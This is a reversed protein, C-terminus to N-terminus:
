GALYALNGGSVAPARATALRPWRGGIARRPGKELHHLIIGPEIMFLLTIWDMVGASRSRMSPLTSSTQPDAISAGGVQDPGPLGLFPQGLGGPRVPAPRRGKRGAGTCRRFSERTGQYGWGRKPWWRAARAARPTSQNLGLGTGEFWWVHNGSHEILKGWTSSRPDGVPRRCHGADHVPRGPLDARPPLASTGAAHRLCGSEALLLRQWM